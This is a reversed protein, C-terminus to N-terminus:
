LRAREITLRLSVRSLLAREAGARDYLTYEVRAMSRRADLRASFKETETELTLTGYPTEYAAPASVGEEFYLGGPSKKVVGRLQRLSHGTLEIRCPVGDDTYEVICREGDGDPLMLGEAETTVEEGTGDQSIHRATIRLRM